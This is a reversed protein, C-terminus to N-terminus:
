FCLNNDRHRNRLIVTNQSTIVTNTTIFLKNNHCIYRRELENNKGYEGIYVTSDSFKNYGFKNIIKDTENFIKKLEIIANNVCSDNKYKESSELYKKYAENINLTRM